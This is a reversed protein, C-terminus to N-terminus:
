SIYSELSPFKSLFCNMPATTRPEVWRHSIRGLPEDRTSGCKFGKKSEVPELREMNDHRFEYIERYLREYPLRPKAYEKTWALEREGVARFIDTSSLFPGRDINLTKREGHWWGYHVIPGLCFEDANKDPLPIKRERPLDRSYYISGCAPFELSMLRAELEVIQKMVVYQEKPTMSFWKDGLPAGSLKEMIIYEAGVPNEKTSSWAYVDPACIGHRRLYNLTATESAITYQEPTTSPYPLRAIVCKGDVFNAQFVRNFGGESLKFFEVIDSAPRDFTAAIIRKLAFVDFKLHREALRLQENYSGTTLKKSDVNKGVGLFASGGTVNVDHFEQQAEIGSDCNILGALLKGGDSVAVKTFKQGTRLQHSQSVLCELSKRSLSLTDLQQGLQEITESPNSDTKQATNAQQLAMEVETKQDDMAKMEEAIRIENDRLQSRMSETISVPTTATLLVATSVALNLTSRCPNLKKRLDEIKPKVFLGFCVRDRPGSGTKWRNLREGFEDCVRQCNTITQQLADQAEPTLADLKQDKQAHDLTVLLAKVAALEDKLDM